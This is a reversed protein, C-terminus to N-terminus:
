TVTYNGGGQERFFCGNFLQILGDVRCMGRTGESLQFPKGDMEEQFSRKEHVGEALAVKEQKM